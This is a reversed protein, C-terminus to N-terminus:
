SLGGVTITTAKSNITIKNVVFSGKYNDDGLFAIAFTYIGSWALNIQLKAVGNADTVLNYVVGNFGISVPKGALVNGESDKLVVSFYRGREGNYFDVATQTFDSSVINTAARIPAKTAIIINTSLNSETYNENGAFNVVFLNKGSLGSVTVTGNADTTVNHEVGNVSYTLNADSIATGNVATLSIIVNGDDDSDIGVVSDVKPLVTANIYEQTNDESKVINTNVDFDYKCNKIDIYDISDVPAKVIGNVNINSFKCNNFYVGDEPLFQGITNIISDASIDDFTCNTFNAYSYSWLDIKTINKFVCNEFNYVRTWRLGYEPYPISDKVDTSLHITGDRFTCNVFNCNNIFYAEIFTMNIYNHSINRNKWMDTNFLAWITNPGQGILTKNVTNSIANISSSYTGDALYIIAPEYDDRLTAYGEDDTDQGYATEWSKGDANPINSSINFYYVSYEDDKLINTDFSKLNSVIVPHNEFTYNGSISVTDSSTLTHNIFTNNYVKLNPIGATINEFSKSYAAIAQGNDAVNSVFTSDHVNLAGSNMATIAGGSGGNCRNINGKFTCNDVIIDYNGMWWNSAGIAGGGSSTNCTNDNFLSNYVKLVSYTYLAGGNWGANNNTFNSNNIITQSSYHTHIAGAWWKAINNIFESNNVYLVGCNNIAGPEVSATNNIFKSKDVNLVVATGYNTVVGYGTSCNVFNCNIIDMNGQNNYIVSNHGTGTTINIFSCNELNNTGKLQMLNEVNMNVFRVNIFNINFDSNGCVFPTGEFNGTIYSSNTGIITINGMFKIVNTPVYENGTLTIVKDKNFNCQNYLEKWNNANVNTGSSSSFSDKAVVERQSDSLEDNSSIVNNTVVNNDVDVASVDVDSVSSDFSTSNDVDAASISGVLCFLAVLCLVFIFLNNKKM